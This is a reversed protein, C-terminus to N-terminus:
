KKNCVEALTKFKPGLTNLFDMNEIHSQDSCCGVSGAVSGEGEFGYTHLIDDAYRGEEGTALYNLKKDLFIGNTRWTNLSTSNRQNVNFAGNVATSGFNYQGDTKMELGDRTLMDPTLIDPQWAGAVTNANMTGFTQMDVFSGRVSQGMGSQMDVFSGKASQGMGSAPVIMISSVEEGRGEINSKLLRGGSGGGDDIEVSARKTVCVFAVLLCLLMALGLLLALIGGAGLVASTQSDLCQNYRCRCIRVTATQRDGTGQLDKVLVPVRYLGTPLEKAQQLTAATDNLKSLKWEGEHPEMLEFLFPSSYPHSDKDEAVMVVSGLEGSRECLILDNSLLLPLNDNEDDVIIFVTGTGTKASSDVAKVTINYMNNKVFDSERDVTNAIKLEGTTEGVDIWSAPDSIEYYRIGTSSKTEPDIATYHGIVTGNPLGEKIRLELNTPIFEPGEDVDEVNVDIPVSVWGAQTGSLGAENQAQVELKLAKKKEFDLPKALYLLCENTDPDTETRFHGDENGKTITCVTNWNPTKTLDKDDVPIRLLLTEREGNEKVNTSYSTKSFTPPNDNIDELLITATATNFLGTPAGNMDRVELTIFHKDKVERDLTATKTKIVGTQSDISFLDKGDLLTYKIKTHDTDEQDRDTAIVQGVVADASQELVSFQLSGPFTPANDNVDLVNVIIPLPLDTEKHTIKDFVRAQFTFQPYKERDVARHLRLMGFLDVSIVGVPDEDVGPGSIMYYVTHNVSSDSGILELDKPLGSSVNEVIFIPPPSWRRKFRRLIGTKPPQSLRQSIYVDMQSQQGNNSQARVSFARGASPVKTSHLTVITGNTYIAFDPDSTHIHKLQSACGLVHVKAIVYGADVEEPATAHLSPPFCSEGCACFLVKVCFCIWLITHHSM